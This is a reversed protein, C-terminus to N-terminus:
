LVDYLVHWGIRTTEETVGDVLELAINAKVLAEFAGFLAAASYGRENDDRAGQLLTTADDLESTSRGMEELIIESYVISQQADDIYEEALMKLESANVSGTDNFYTAINIWWGVSDSRELAFSIKYLTTLYDASLFSSEAQSLYVEAETARQQAAGVCQLSVMGQIKENKVRDSVNNVMLHSEDLLSQVYGTQDNSRFYECAYAVFHADIM